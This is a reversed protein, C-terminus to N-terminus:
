INATWIGLFARLRHRLFALAARLEASAKARPMGLKAAIETESCGEFFAMELAQRQSKPLQNLVKKLVEMRGELQLINEQRPLWALTEALLGAGAPAPAPTDPAPRLRDLALQRAVSVLWVAPSGGERSLGQADNRLRLLAVQLVKEAAARDPLMCRLM